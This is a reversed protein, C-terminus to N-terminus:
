EMAANNGAIRGFTFIDAIANGGVRNSGHIGGTIEGAAYLGPIIKDYRDVVQAKTNINLGGMTHHVSMGAYCAWFPGTAIKKALNHSKKGFDVDKKTDVYSNYKNVTAVFADAPVGMKKALEELSDAKWSDGTELGQIATDRQLKDYSMFVTNDLVTFGYKEPLNLIAERIVDRREDEAVFRNARKDVFIFGSVDLHLVIRLKRGPPAGPNCQIYDMGVPYAGIDMAYMIMEGTTGPQNTTTLEKMRPDHLARMLKNAGFGGSALVVAKKAGFYVTKGKKDTARVGLVRGNLQEERIIQNVNMETFIKVGKKDAAAKLTKIYGTGKPDVPMHTRPYLSGYIQIIHDQFKMGLGELWKVSDLANDTLVKVKEPDARFDGAAITQKFHNEASDKIGQKAQREPDAANLGGGSIITNGGINPMKELVIVSAGKEAASVAAALGAGGAGVVVIDASRTWQPQACLGPLAAALTFVAVVAFFAFRIFMKKKMCGGIKFTKHYVISRGWQFWVMKLHLGEQYYFLFFSFM